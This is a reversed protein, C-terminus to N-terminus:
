VTPTAINGSPSFDQNKLLRLGSAGGVRWVDATDGASSDQSQSDSGLETPGLKWNCIPAVATGNKNYNGASPFEKQSEAQAKRNPM